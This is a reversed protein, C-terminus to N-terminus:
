VGENTKLSIKNLFFDSKLKKQKKKDNRNFPNRLPIRVRLSLHSKATFKREPKM